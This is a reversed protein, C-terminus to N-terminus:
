TKSSGLVRPPETIPGLQQALQKVLQATHNLLDLPEQLTLPLSPNKQLRKAAKQLYVM